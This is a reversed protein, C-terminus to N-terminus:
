DMRVDVDRGSVVSEEGALAVRMAHVAEAFPLTKAQRRGRLFDAFARLCGASDHGMTTTDCGRYSERRLLPSRVVKGEADLVHQAVSIEMLRDDRSVWDCFIAGTTGILGFDFRKVCEGFQTWHLLSTGGGQFMLNLSM